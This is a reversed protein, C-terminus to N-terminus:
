GCAGPLAPWCRRLSRWASRPSMWERRGQLACPGAHAQGDTAEMPAIGEAADTYDSGHRVAPEESGQRAGQEECRASARRGGRGQSRGARRSPVRCQVFPEIEARLPGAAHDAVLVPVAEDVLHDNGGQGVAEGGPGRLAGPAAGVAVGDAFGAMYEGRHSWCPGGAVGGDLADDGGVLGAEGLFGHEAGGGGG